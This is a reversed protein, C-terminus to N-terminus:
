IFFRIITNLYLNLYLIFSYIRNSIFRAFSKM